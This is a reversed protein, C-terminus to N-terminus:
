KSIHVCLFKFSEVWEVVAGHIPSHEARRTRYDVSLKKTKSVILSFNDQCCLVLDSVEEGYATEDDDNILSVV